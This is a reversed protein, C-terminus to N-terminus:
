KKTNKHNSKIIKWYGGKDPGEREIIGKVKLNELDRFITRINVNLKESLQKTSIQSDFYILKLIEQKRNETVDNEIVNEIVNKKVVDNEIVNEIVNENKSAFVTIMLGGSITRIEPLPKNDEKFYDTIRKIGTGVKEILKMDKFVGAIM